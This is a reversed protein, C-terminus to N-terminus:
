WMLPWISISSIRGLATGWIAMMATIVTSVVGFLMVPPMLQYLSIGGAKLAVIENDNSLRLFTLLVAMMVSMPIIYVFFFPMSFALM